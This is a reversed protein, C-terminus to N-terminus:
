GPTGDAGEECAIGAAVQETVAVSDHLMGIIPYGHDSLVAGVLNGDADCALEPAQAMVSTLRGRFPDVYQVNLQSEDECPNAIVTFWYQREEVKSGKKVTVTKSDVRIFDQTYCVCPACCFYMSGFRSAEGGPVENALKVEMGYRKMDSPTVPSGSVPRFSKFMNTFTDETM